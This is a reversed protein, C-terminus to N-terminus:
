KSPIVVDPTGSMVSYMGTGFGFPVNAGRLYINRNIFGSDSGSYIVLSHSCTVPDPKSIKTNFWNAFVNKKALEERLTARTTAGFNWRALPSPDIFPQRGNYVKAYDAFFPDRVNKIQSQSILVAYTLNMYSEISQQTGLPHNAMWTKKIDVDKINANDIQLWGAVKKMFSDQLADKENEIVKPFNLVSIHKPYTKSITMNKGYMVQAAAMWIAPDRSLFGATDLVPAMPMVGTLPVLGHTPRNGFIGQVQAPGRISGGTDSGLSIDLWSYAAPGAGPGASSSGADQYGDGRPNFPAHYDVWDATATEGNAFQSTKMKGIIVAGADILRQVAEATKNAAPYLKYWARNGNGTKVGKIDFIDKIGVRVGALPKSATKEFYLRSPVAVALAQGGVNAPLVSFTGDPSPTITETFAGQLDSYLRHAERLGGNANM